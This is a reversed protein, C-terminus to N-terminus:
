RRDGHKTLRARATALRYGNVSVDIRLRGRRIRRVLRRPLAITSRGAALRRRITHAKTRQRITLTLRCRRRCRVTAVVFRGDVDAAIRRRLRVAARRSSWVGCDEATEPGAAIPGIVASAVGPPGPRLPSVGEPVFYGEDTFSEDRDIRQDTVRLWRGRYRAPLRRGGGRQCRGYKIEDLIVVCGVGRPTRCAQLQLWDRERGWGGQWTAPVPRVIGGVRVDGVVGPPSSARLRGRWRESRVTVGDQTAAFVTGPAEDRVALVQPDGDRDDHPRCASGEPPCLQWSVPHGGPNSILLGTGDPEVYHDVTIRGNHRALAPSAALLVVSLVTLTPLRRVWM